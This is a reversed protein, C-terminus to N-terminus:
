GSSVHQRVFHYDLALHKMKSHCVPNASLYTAGVNDCFLQPQPVSIGLENLLNRLWLIEAVTNALARYEAETSSRAVSKQKTSKWSVPNSGIYIIHGTTSTCDDLNDGWDADTFATINFGTDRKLLLGHNITGKLYRLIRKLASWHNQSPCHMFQSLKNVSFAIDPQTLSLYHLSGALQRYLTANTTGSDDTLKLQASSAMPTATSKSNQMEFRDLLDRVYKQQSLFLDMSTSIVEVGTVILDDVYVLFCILTQNQSLIFLSADSVSNTFGFEILFKSLEQFWARPAQKLSYIAKHLKCVHTPHDKDVFGPPQAMYVEDSLTGSSPLVPATVLQDALVISSSSTGSGDGVHLEDPGGYKTYLSLANLNKAMHHSAGTDTVWNENTTSESSQVFNAVLDQLASIRYQRCTKAPHGFKGCLQCTPRTNGSHTSPPFHRRQYYSNNPRTNTGRPFYPRPQDPVRALTTYNATLLPITSEEQKISLEFDTLKDHLEEFSIETDRARIATSLERFELNLGNLTFLILNENFVPSQAMALTDATSRMDQLFEAISKNGQVLKKKLSMIRSCTKGALLTVLKEMAEWQLYTPSITTTNATFQKPYPTRGNLYGDLDLGFLLTDLQVKWSPFNTYTLKLPLQSTTNIQIITTSTNTSESAM